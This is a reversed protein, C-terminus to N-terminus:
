PHQPAELIARLRLLDKRNARRMAAEMAPALLSAFGSPTGRNRLIMRTRDEGADHWAYSTEMAFPGDATRMVLREDPVYEVVEYVYELQRGLFRASFAIRSGVGIPAPTLLDASKINAYWRTATTPDAAFAAVQQRRRAIEIETQVDVRVSV